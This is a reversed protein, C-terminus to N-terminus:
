IPLKLPRLRRFAKMLGTESLDGFLLAVNRFQDERQGAVCIDDSTDTLRQGRGPPTFPPPAPPPSYFPSSPANLLLELRKCNAYWLLMNQLAKRQDKDNGKDLKRSWYVVSKNFAKAIQTFYDKQQKSSITFSTPSPSSPASSSSTPSSYPILSQQYAIAAALTSGSFQVLAEFLGTMYELDKKWNIPISTSVDAIFKSNHKPFLRDPLKMEPYYFKVSKSHGGSPRTGASPYTAKSQGRGNQQCPSRIPQSSIHMLDRGATCMSLGTSRMASKIVRPPPLPSISDGCDKRVDIVATRRLKIKKTYSRDAEDAATLESGSSAIAPSMLSDLSREYAIESALM